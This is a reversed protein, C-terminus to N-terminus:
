NMYDPRPKFCGTRDFGLQYFPTPSCQTLEDGLTVNCVYVVHVAM